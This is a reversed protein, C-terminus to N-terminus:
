FPFREHLPEKISPCGMLFFGFPKVLLVVIIGLYLVHWFWRPTMAVGVAMGSFFGLIFKM